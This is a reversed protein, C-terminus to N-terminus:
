ARASCACPSVTRLLRSAVASELVPVGTVDIVVVRARHARVAGLLREDLQQARELDLAGIVPLVLLGQELQLVPTSLELIAQQKSRELDAFAARLRRNADSLRVGRQELETRSVELAAAMSNFARALAGAEGAGGEPARVREEGGALRQAAEGVARVPAVVARSLYVLGLPVGRAACFGAGGVISALTASAGADDNRRDARRREDAIYDEYIRRVADLRAKGAATARILEARSRDPGAAIEDDVYRGYASAAAEVRRAREEQTHDGASLSRLAALTSRLEGRGARAPELLSERGTLLYGRLGTELDVTLRQARSANFLRTASRTADDSADRLAAVSAAPRRLGRRAAAGAPWRRRLLAHHAPGAEGACRIGGPNGPLLPGPLARRHGHAGCEDEAATAPGEPGM